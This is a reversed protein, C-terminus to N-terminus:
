GLYSLTLREPVLLQLRGTCGTARLLQTYCHLFCFECALCLGVLMGTTSTSCLGLICFCAICTGLQWPEQLHLRGLTDAAAATTDSQARQLWFLGSLVGVILFQCLDQTSLTQFRRTRVSRCWACVCIQNFCLANVPHCCSSNAFLAQLSPTQAALSLQQLLICRVCRM